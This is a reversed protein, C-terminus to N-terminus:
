LCHRSDALFGDLDDIADCGRDVTLLRAKQGNRISTLMDSIPDLTM